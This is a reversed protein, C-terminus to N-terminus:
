LKVGLTVYFTRPSAPIIGPGPYADARRTFYINNTLNNCGTEVIFKKYGYKLSLDMVYYSPIVGIVANPVIVETNTADTFHKGTFTYQYSAQFNQRRFTAGLKVIASPVLEVRKNRFATEQSSTYRADLFTVNSFLSLSQKAENGKMLKWIDAEVFTEIGVNRSDAVHTRYRFVTFDLTDERLVAGIRDQYSLYFLSADFDLVNSIKGRFGLDANYGREDRLNPDVRFNPNVVRMDNFNIARYNQSVNAYVEVRETPRYSAGLGLLVFSRNNSLQEETRQDLLVNGAQDTFRNRYYGASATRIYEFRIGPTISLKPSVAFVNEVFASFNRSPFHYDSNELSDPNLYYFDPGSGDNALGQRRDLLGQYYRTGVLFTSPNGFTNYTHLFRTENGFNRYADWLLDRNTLPDTRNISGLNGLAKRTALLGFTRSNVRTFTSFHYDLNVAALNWTVAFWNRARISQQPDQAFMVDTLGGPQQAEYGMLTVDLGASFKPTVQYNVSTYGTNVVFGSNPRWEHGRKHQYFSYYNVKGKTGGVSNFSSFLGYSGLTQRSLVEFPRERNGKKLVFNIMGGFQTGYQLSAAGRVVEIKELAETPPAYYSEPYGLADASMDYGNQRTNFETTRKPNLGRAGIGLQIGAADSEWINLGAVKAFVQRANNTALNAAVDELVIVESKKAAYIAVGEVPHLRTIGFTNDKGATITISQLEQYLSDLTFDLSLDGGEVQIARSASRYGYAQVVLTYAGPKVAKLHYEGGDNTTGGYSTAQLVVQAGAISKQNGNVVRGRISAEQAYLAWPLLLCYLLGTLLLKM